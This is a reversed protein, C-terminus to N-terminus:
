YTSLTGVLYVDVTKANRADHAPEAKCDVHLSASWTLCLWVRDIGYLLELAGPRQQRHLVAFSLALRAHHRLRTHRCILGTSEPAMCDM